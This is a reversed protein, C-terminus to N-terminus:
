PKVNYFDLEMDRSDLYTSREDNSMEEEIKAIQQTHTLKLKVTTTCVVPVNSVSDDPTVEVVTTSDTMTTTRTSITTSPCSNPQTCGPCEHAMHGKQHCRFCKGEKQLQEHKDDTLKKFPERNQVNTTDVEMPIIGNNNNTIPRSQNVQQTQGTQFPSNDCPKNKSHFDLGASVTKRVKHVEARAAEKWEEWTM